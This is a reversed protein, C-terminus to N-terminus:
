MDKLCRKTPHTREHSIYGWLTAHHHNESILANPEILTHYSTSAYQVVRWQIAHESSFRKAFPNMIYTTVETILKQNIKCDKMDLM